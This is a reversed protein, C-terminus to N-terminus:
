RAVIHTFIFVYLVAVLNYVLQPSVVAKGDAGLKLPPLIREDLLAPRVSEEPLEEDGEGALAAEEKHEWWPLEGQFEAAVLATVKTPDQLTMDFAARQAPSLLALLDDPSLADVAALVM